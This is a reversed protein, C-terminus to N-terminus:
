ELPNFVAGAFIVAKSDHEMIMFMFPHDAVFEEKPPKPKSFCRVTMGMVSVAAAETGKENVDIYANQIVDSIYVEKSKSGVIMETFDDQDRDFPLKLGLKKMLDKAEFRYSSKWKPIVVKKMNTQKLGDLTRSLTVSLKGIMESLGDVKHPLFIYMSFCPGEDKQGYEHPRGTKYSLEIVKFKDFKGYRFWTNGNHMFPVTTVKNIGDILHFDKTDSSSCNEFNKSWFAKFYIANTLVLPTDKNIYGPNLINSIRGNTSKTAWSNVEKVAEEKQHRFNVNNAQARYVDTLLKKFSDKVPYQEDIWIANACSIIPSSVTPSVTVPPNDDDGSNNLKQKKVLVPPPNNEPSALHLVKMISSAKSNLDDIDKAGLFRLLQELTKGKAGCAVTRLVIDLSAPSLIVNKAGRSSGDKLQDLISEISIRISFDM